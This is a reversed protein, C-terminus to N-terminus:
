DTVHVALAVAPPPPLSPDVPEEGARRLKANARALAVSTQRKETTLRDIKKEADRVKTNAQEYQKGVVEATTIAAYTLTLLVAVSFGIILMFVLAPVRNALSKM